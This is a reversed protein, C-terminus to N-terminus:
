KWQVLENKYFGNDQFHGRKRINMESTVVDKDIVHRRKGDKENEGNIEKDLDEM